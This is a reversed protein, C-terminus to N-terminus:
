HSTNQTHSSVVSFGSLDVSTTCRQCSANSIVPLPSVMRRGLQHLAWFSAFCTRDGRTTSPLLRGPSPLSPNHQDLQQEGDSRPFSTHLSTSSQGVYHFYGQQAELRALGTFNATLLKRKACPIQSFWIQRQLRRMQIIERELADAPLERSPRCSTSCCAFNNILCFRKKSASKFSRLRQLVGAGNSRKLSSVRLSSQMQSCRKPRGALSDASASTFHRKRDFFKTSRARM